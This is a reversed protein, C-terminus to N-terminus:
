QALHYIGVTKERMLMKTKGLTILKMSKVNM